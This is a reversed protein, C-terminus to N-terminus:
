VALADILSRPSLLFSASPSASRFSNFRYSFADPRISVPTANTRASQVCAHLAVDVLEVARAEDLAKVVLTLAVSRKPSGRQKPAHQSSRKIQVMSYDIGQAHAHFDRYTVGFPLEGFENAASLRALFDHECTM